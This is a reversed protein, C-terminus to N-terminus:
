RNAPEGVDWIPLDIDVVIPKNYRRGGVHPYNNAVIACNVVCTERRGLRGALASNDCRASSPDEGLGLTGCGPQGRSSSPGLEQGRDIMDAVDPPARAVACGAPVGAGDGCPPPRGGDNDLARRGKRGTLDLLSLKASGEGRNLDIWVDTDEEVFAANSKKLSWRVTEAGRGEHVHGCVAIMPRVRWLARRLAECGAARRGGTEDCHGRPPTHTVVVDTSLPIADWLTPFDATPGALHSSPSWYGFAWRPRSGHTHHPSFPSGFVSFTTRPGTPSELRITTSSHCLYSITPSSTLLSLCEASFEASQDGDHRGYIACHGDDLTM